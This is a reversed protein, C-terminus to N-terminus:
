AESILIMELNPKMTSSKFLSNTPRTLMEFGKKLQDHTGSDIEIGPVFFEKKAYDYDNIIRRAYERNQNMKWTLIDLPRPSSESGRRTDNDEM